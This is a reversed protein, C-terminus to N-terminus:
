DSGADSFGKPNCLEIFNTAANYTTSFKNLDVPKSTYGYTAEITKGMRKCWARCSCYPDFKEPPANTWKRIWNSLEEVELIPRDKFSDMVDTVRFHEKGKAPLIALNVYAKQDIDIERHLFMKETVLAIADVTLAEQDEEDRGRNECAGEDILKAAADQASSVIESLDAEHLERRVKAIILDRRLIEAEARRLQQVLNSVIEVSSPENLPAHPKRGSPAYLSSSSTVSSSTASSSVVQKTEETDNDPLADCGVSNSAYSSPLSSSAATTSASTSASATTSSSSTATSASVSPSTASAASSSILSPGPFWPSDSTAKETNKLSDSEKEIRKQEQEQQKKAAQKQAEQKATLKKKKENNQEIVKKAKNFNDSNLNKSYYEVTTDGATTTVVSTADNIKNSTVSIGEEEVEDKESTEEEDYPDSVKESTSFEPIDEDVADAEEPMTEWKKYNDYTHKAETDQIPLRSTPTDTLSFSSPASSSTSSCPSSTSKPHITTVEEIHIGSKKKPM